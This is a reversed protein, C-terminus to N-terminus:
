VYPANERTAEYTLFFYIAVLIADMVGTLIDYAFFRPLILIVIWQAGVAVLWVVGGWSAALWLGVAAIFDIVAFFVVAAIGTSSMSDLASEADSTMVPAWHALGQLVWLVSLARMFWVLLTGYRTEGSRETAGLRIPPLPPKFRPMTTPSKM